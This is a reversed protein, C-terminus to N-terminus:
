KLRGIEKRIRWTLNPEKVEDAILVALSKIVAAKDDGTSKVWVEVAQKIKPNAVLHSFTDSGLLEELEVVKPDQYELGLGEALLKSLPEGSKDPPRRAPRGLLSVLSSAAKATSLAAGDARM